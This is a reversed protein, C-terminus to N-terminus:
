KLVLNDPATPATPATTSSSFEDAGIDSSVGQPRPQGDFDDTVSVAIGKDIAVSATQKLHLDGAAPNVFLSSAANTVNTSVSGSAGDRSVIKADTLNNKIDVGTTGAFRYEIANPYGGSMLITNHYVKTQPSDFVGISVDPAITGTKYIFNNAILGRAHDPAQDSPMNADLGFAIDRQNNIFVNRTVTTDSSGNWILITPGALAGNLRFNRFTNNRVIWNKGRHVDLAHTYSDPATSTYELLSNELVGNDVGNLRDATPNNKLFQDGIDIIHLNRFVPNDVGGNLIIAHQNFDRITMDQFTIGSVNDAWFGFAVSSNMMGPGKIIVADRNGSAGKITVNSIARPLYLPANLNYTGDAIALTSNSVLSMVANQLQSLTSVAVTNGNSTSPTTTAQTTANIISSYGSLNGAADAAQIRFRYTTNATLGTSSATTGIPIAFQAFNTCSSEQCREVRYGAVAVNDTSPSWSLNIQSASAVSATLNSPASPATIDVSPARSTGGANVQYVHIVPLEGDGFGQSIFIRQTSSDYAAGKIATGGFPLPLQWIAYPKAEWPQLQSNRVKILDDVNYAWVQAVYPPANYGGTGWCSTPGEDKYCIPGTGHTGFFLVSKSGTPFVVGMISTTCNFYANQSACGGLPNSLPYYVLPNAPLPNVSGLNDLNFAFVSPGSSTRSIIALCCNGTLATGGLASQWETPIHGMYGSVYGAGVSGVRFMGQVDGTISMDTSGSVYHSVTQSNTADYFLYETGYLKSNHILLGGVKYTGSGVSKGESPDRFNQLVAATKLNNLNTSNVIEPISVEAILQDWDHGTMFLSNRGPNYALAKGGYAFGGNPSGFTGAPLRFAGVYQLDSSQILGSTTAGFINGASFLLFLTSFLRKFLCKIM